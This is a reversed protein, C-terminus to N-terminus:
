KHSLASSHSDLVASPISIYLLTWAPCHPAKPTATSYTPALKVAVLQVACRRNSQHRKTESSVHAAFHLVHQCLLKGPCCCYCLSAFVKIHRLSFSNDTHAIQVCNPLANRWMFSLHGSVFACVCVNTLTFTTPPIARRIRKPMNTRAAQLVTSMQLFALMWCGFALLLCAFPCFVIVIVNAAALTLFSITQHNHRM